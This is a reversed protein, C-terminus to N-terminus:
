LLKIHNCDGYIGNNFNDKENKLYKLNSNNIVFKLCKLRLQTIFDEELTELNM